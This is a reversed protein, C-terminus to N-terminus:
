RRTGWISVKVVGTENGSDTSLRLLDGQSITKNWGTLAASSNYAASSVTPKDTGSISAYSTGNDASRYVTGSYNGSADSFIKWGTVTCNYEVVKTNNGSIPNGLGNFGFFSLQEPAIFTSSIETGILTMDITTTNAVSTSEGGGAVLAEIKDYVANQSPATTTTGNWGSGYATDSVSGGGGVTITAIGGTVTANIGAGVVDIIGAPGKPVGEDRIILNKTAVDAFSINYALFSLLFIICIIRRMM